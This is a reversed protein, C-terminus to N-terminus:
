FKERAEIGLMKLASAAAASAARLLQLRQPLPATSPASKQLLTRTADSMEVVFRAIRAPQRQQTAELAESSWLAVLRALEREGPTWNIEPQPARSVIDVNYIQGQAERELRALRSPLLRAAYSPNSEDDRRATELEIEAIKSTEVKLFGFKLAEPEIEEIEEDLILPGGGSGLRLQVGDRKLVAGECALFEFKDMDCGAAALAATTRPIYSKHSASWINIIRDFGREGKWIHYAIDGAFYTPEGNARKLVRDADDGFDTTKLWLAGDKQYTFGRDQLRKLAFEVRGERRLDSESIFADFRIGFRELTAKQSAVASDLAAKSGIELREGVEVGLWKAGDRRALEAAVGRVFVENEDRPMAGNARGFAELYWHAVGEGLARIKSSSTADNLYFERTVRAGQNELLRCIAEGVAGHRGSVFSLPGTPDASVYEVLIRQGALADGVGFLHGERTARELTQNLFDDSMLFNLKGNQLEIRGKFHPSLSSILTHGIQEVERGTKQAIQWPANSSFDGFDRPARTVVPELDIEFHCGIAGRLM